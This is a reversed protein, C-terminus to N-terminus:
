GLRVLLSLSCHFDAIQEENEEIDEDGPFEHVVTVFTAATGPYWDTLEPAIM